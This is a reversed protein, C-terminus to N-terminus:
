SCPVSQSHRALSTEKLNGVRSVLLLSQVIRDKFSFTWGMKGTWFLMELGLSALSPLPAASDKVVSLCRSMRCFPHCSLEKCGVPFGHCSNILTRELPERPSNASTWPQTFACCVRCSVQHHLCLSSIAISIKQERNRSNLWTVSKSLALGSLSLFSCFLSHSRLTVRKPLGKSKSIFRYKVSALLLCCLTCNM